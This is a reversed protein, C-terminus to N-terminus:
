CYVVLFEGVHLEKLDKDKVTFDTSDCTPGWYTSKLTRRSNLTKEPVLPRFRMMDPEWFKILFGGFLGDNLYYMCSDGQETKVIKKGIIKTILVLASGVFYRGPESIIKLLPFKDVPFFDDLAKNIFRAMQFFLDDNNEFNIIDPFGGGVDLVEMDFGFRKMVLSSEYSMRIASEFVAASSCDSGVHFAIGVVRLGLGHAVSLLSEVESTKAGFKDGLKYRSTSDDVKLRLLLKADPFEESVKQLEEESDFTMLQVNSERAFRLM